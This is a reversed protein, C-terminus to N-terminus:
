NNNRIYDILANVTKSVAIESQDEGIKKISPLLDKKFNDDSNIQKHMLETLVVVREKLNITNEENGKLASLAQATSAMSQNVSKVLSIMEDNRKKNEASNTKYLYAIVMSLIIIGALLLIILYKLLSAVSSVDLDNTAGIVLETQLVDVLIM